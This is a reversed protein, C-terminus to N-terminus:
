SNKNKLPIAYHCCDDIKARPFCWVKITNKNPLRDECIQSLISSGM